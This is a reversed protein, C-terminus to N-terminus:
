GLKYTAIGKAVLTGSEDTVDIELFCLNKGRRIARAEATVMSSRAAALFSVNLSVTTGRINDVDEAGSWAAAAAATDILSSIAGGHVVDGITVLEEKFPLELRAVDKELSVVKMGLTGIFPSGELWQQVLESPTTM